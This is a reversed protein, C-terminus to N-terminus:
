KRIQLGKHMGEDVLDRLEKGPKFHPHYRAPVEISEGTRPNRAIRAPYLHLSFTGFGRIEIRDGHALSQIMVEQIKKVSLEIDRQSFHTLKRSLNEIIESRIM